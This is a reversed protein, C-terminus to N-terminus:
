LFYSECVGVGATAASHRGCSTLQLITIKFDLKKWFRRQCCNVQCSIVARTWTIALVSGGCVDTMCKLSVHIHNCGQRSAFTYVTVRDGGAWMTPPPLVQFSAAPQSRCRPRPPEHWAPHGMSIYVMSINYQFTKPAAQDVRPSQRTVPSANHRHTTECPSLANVATTHRLTVPEM